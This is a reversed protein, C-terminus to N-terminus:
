SCATPGPRCDQSCRRPRGRPAGRSCAAWATTRWGGRRARRAARARVRAAFPLLELEGSVSATTPSDGRVSLRIPTAPCIRPPCTRRLRRRASGSSPSSRCHGPPCPRRRLRGRFRPERVADGHLSRPDGYVVGGPDRLRDPPRRARAARAAGRATDPTCVLTLPCVDPVRLRAAGCRLGGNSAWCTWATGARRSSSPSTDGDCPQAPRLHWGYPIERNPDCPDPVQAPTARPTLALAILILALTLLFIRLAHRM